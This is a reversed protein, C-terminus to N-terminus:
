VGCVHAHVCFSGARASTSKQLLGADLCSPLTGAWPTGCDEPCVGDVSSLEANTCYLRCHDCSPGVGGTQPSGWVACFARGWGHLPVQSGNVTATGTVEGVCDYHSTCPQQITRLLEEAVPVDVRVGAVGAGAAASPLEEALALPLLSENTVLAKRWAAAEVNSVAMVTVAASAPPDDAAAVRGREACLQNVGLAACTARLVAGAVEAASLNAGSAAGLTVTFHLQPGPRIDPVAAEAAAVAAGGRCWVARVSGAPAPETRTLVVAGRYLGGDGCGASSNGWSVWVEADGVDGGQGDKAAVSLVAWLLGEGYGPGADRAAPGGLSIAVSPGTPTPGAAQLLARGPGPGALFQSGVAAESGGSGGGDARRRRPAAAEPAPLSRYINVIGSVDLGAGCDTAAARIAPVNYEAGADSWEEGVDVGRFYRRMGGLGLSGNPFVGCYPVDVLSLPASNGRRVSVSGALGYGAFAQVFFAQQFFHDCAADPTGAPTVPANPGFCHAVAADVTSASVALYERYDGYAYDTRAARPPVTSALIFSNTFFDEKPYVTSVKQTQYLELHYVGDLVRTTSADDEGLDSEYIYDQLSESFVNFRFAPDGAPQLGSIDWKDANMMPWSKLFSRLDVTIETQNPQPGCDVECGFRGVGRYESPSCIEDGCKDDVFIRQIISTDLWDLIDQNSSIFGSTGLGSSYFGQTDAPLEAVITNMFSKLLMSQDPINSRHLYIVVVYLSFFFLAALLNRYYLRNKQKQQIKQLFSM